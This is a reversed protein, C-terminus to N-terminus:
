DSDAVFSVLPPMMCPQCQRHNPRKLAFQSTSNSIEAIPHIAAGSPACAWDIVTALPLLWVPVTPVASALGSTTLTRARPPTGITPAVTVNETVSPFPDTAGAVAAVSIRPLADVLKVSPVTAPVLLTTALVAPIPDTVKLAVPRALLATLM